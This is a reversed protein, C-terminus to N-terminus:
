LTYTVYDHECPQGVAVHVCREAPEWVMSATTVSQDPDPDDDDWHSCISLPANAHDCLVAQGLRVPDEGAELGAALLEEARARRKYTGESTTADQPALEPTVYHNTHVFCAGGDLWALRIATTEVDWIRGAADALLHNSGRARPTAAIRGRIDELRRCAFLSALLLNNPVGVGMDWSYLTNAGGCLGHSTVGTIPLNGAPGVSLYSTGDDLTVHRVTLCEIDGPYWDENHGAVTRGGAKFAFSTCHEPREAQEPLCTFEENCNAAFLYEFPVGAGEALGRLQDVIQPVAGEAPRLYPRAREVAEAFSFGALAVFQEGYYDLERLVLEREAEGIQRGVERYTGKAEIYPLEADM